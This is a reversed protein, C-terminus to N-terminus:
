IPCGHALMYECCENLYEGFKKLKNIDIYFRFGTDDYDWMEIKYWKTKEGEPNRAESINWTVGYGFPVMENDLLKITYKDGFYDVGKVENEGNIILEIRRTVEDIVSCEDCLCNFLMDIHTDDSYSRFIAYSYYVKYVDDWTKPPNENFSHCTSKRPYFRFILKDGDDNEDLVFDIKRKKAM